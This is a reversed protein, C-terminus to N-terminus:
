IKSYDSDDHQSVSDPIWAIHSLSSCQGFVDTSKTHEQHQKKNENLNLPVAPSM